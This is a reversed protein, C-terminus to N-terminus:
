PIAYLAVWVGFGSYALAIFSFGMLELLGTEPNDDM